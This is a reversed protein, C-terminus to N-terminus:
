GAGAAGALWVVSGDGLPRGLDVGLERHWLLHIAHARAVVPWPTAEVLDGFEVPGRGAVERLCPELGLRDDLERRRQSLADIVTCVHGRWEAVVTYRWGASVAMRAAAAFRVVDLDEIRARPRVDVLWHAGTSSFLLFDPIHALPGDVSEFLLRFPQSLVQAVGGAFEAALLLKQEELSEAGHHRDTAVMYGLGPRHRQTPRWSFRRIQRSEFFPADQVDRVACATLEGDRLRWQTVWRRAWGDGLVLRGVAADPISYPVLLEDLGCRDSPVLV